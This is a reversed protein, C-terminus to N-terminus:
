LELVTKLIEAAYFSPSSPCSLPINFSGSKLARMRYILPYILSYPTVQSNLYLERDHNERFMAKVNLEASFM